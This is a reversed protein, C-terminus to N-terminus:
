VYFSVLDVNEANCVCFNYLFILNLSCRHLILFCAISISDVLALFTLGIFVLVVISDLQCVM